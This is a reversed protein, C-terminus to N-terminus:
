FSNSCVPAADYADYASADNASAHAYAIASSSSSDDYTSPM